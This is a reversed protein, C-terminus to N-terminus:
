PTTTTPPPSCRTRSGRRVIERAQKESKDPAYELVVRWAALDKANPANTYRQGDPLGADIADLIRNLRGHDLGDWADPPTWPEVTQVEDGHPYLASANDLPVGVLRFWKAAALPPAINVKGSDLRVLSRREDEKIGFGQAEDTTMASLTYVLRAGDKVASAGRGRNANGPDTAGKSTHHPVDVAIDKAVAIGALIQVVQDMASNSNEDVAHTKVFPDLGVLDIKHQDIAAEIADALVSKEVKGDRDVMLKGAAAGPASLYLWGAM